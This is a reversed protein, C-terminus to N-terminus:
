VLLLGEPPRDAALERDLRDAAMVLAVLADVRGGTKVSADRDIKQLGAPDSKAVAHAIAHRLIPHGGHHWKGALFRREFGKVAPGMSLFGQGFAVVPIGEEALEAMLQQGQFLRDLNVSRIDCRMADAVVRVRVAGYDVAAGPTVTLIGADAWERYRAWHRPNRTQELQSEPVFCQCWLDAAEPDAPCPSVLVWATLDAVSALDLGGVAWRGDPEAPAPCAAQADWRELELWRTRQEVWQNLYLRRFTNQRAPSAEAQRFEDELFEPRLFDGLAPNAEAWVARDRWDQHDRAGYHVSLFSPDTIVGSRVDRAYSHLEYCLSERDYGATTIALRLPERRTGQATTMVDWLDRSKHAHLEDLIVGHPNFGHKTPVDASLVRFVSLTEPDAIVDRYVKLQAALDPSSQVMRQAEGFVIRAQLRDTALAYVEAGAEGDACLLYLGIGAALESKGNKRPLEILATRIQRRGDPGTRGFMPDIIHSRQWATLRFPQGAWQGRSHRLYREFFVAVRDARANESM